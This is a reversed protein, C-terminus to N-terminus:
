FFLGVGVAPSDAPFLGELASASQSFVNTSVPSTPVLPLPPAGLSQLFTTAASEATAFGNESNLLSNSILNLITAPIQRQLENSQRRVTVFFVAIIFDKAVTLVGRSTKAEVCVLILTLTIWKM